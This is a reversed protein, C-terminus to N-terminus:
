KNLHIIKIKLDNVGKILRHYVGEEITFITGKQLLFPLCGDIQFQWGDGELVEIQRDEKDRHWVYEESKLSVDFTRVTDNDIYPKGSIHDM